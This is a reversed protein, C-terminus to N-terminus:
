WKGFGDLDWQGARLFLQFSLHGKHWWGSCELPEPLPFFGRPAASFNRWTIVLSLECQTKWSDLSIQLSNESNLILLQSMSVSGTLFRGLAGFQELWVWFGVSSGSSPFHRFTKGGPLPSQWIGVAACPFLLTKGPFSTNSTDLTWSQLLRPSHFHRQECSPHAKFDRGIGVMGSYWSELLIVNKWLLIQSYGWCCGSLVWIWCGSEVGFEWM